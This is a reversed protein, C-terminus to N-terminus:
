LPVDPRSRLSMLSSDLWLTLQVFAVGKELLLEVTSVM